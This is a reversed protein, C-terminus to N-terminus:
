SKWSPRPEKAVTFVLRNGAAGIPHGIGPSGGNVNVKEEPIGLEKLSAIVQGAFAENFEVRDVQDM